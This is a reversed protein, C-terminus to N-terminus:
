SRTGDTPSHARVYTAIGVISCFENLDVETFDVQGGTVQEVHDIIAILALSDLHGSLLLNEDDEFPETLKTNANVIQRIESEM